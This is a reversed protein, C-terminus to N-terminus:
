EYPVFGSWVLIADTPLLPATTTTRQNVTVLACIKQGDPVWIRAGTIVEANTTLLLTRSSQPRVINQGTILTANECGDIASM